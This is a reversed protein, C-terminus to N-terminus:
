RIGFVGKWFKLSFFVLPAGDPFIHWWRYGYAHRYILTARPWLAEAVGRSCWSYRMKKVIGYGYAQELTYRSLRIYERQRALADFAMVGCGILFIPHIFLTLVFFVAFVITPRTVPTNLLRM